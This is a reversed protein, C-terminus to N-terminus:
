RDAQKAPQLLVTHHNEPLIPHAPPKHLRLLKLGLTLSLRSCGRPNRVKHEQVTVLEAEARSLLTASSPWAARRAADFLNAFLMM